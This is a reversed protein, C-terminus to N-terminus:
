IVNYAAIKEDTARAAMPWAKLCVWIVRELTRTGQYWPVGTGPYPPVIPNYLRLIYLMFKSFNATVGTKISSISSTVSDLFIIEQM